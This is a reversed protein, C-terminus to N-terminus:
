KMSLSNRLQSFSDALASYEGAPAETLVGVATDNDTDIFSVDEKQLLVGSERVLFEWHLAPFGDFTEPSMDLQQYGPEKELVAIVPAAAKQPTSATTNPTLDIRLLTTTPSSPSVITTDTGYSVAQEADKIQWGAPYEISFARGNYTTTAPAPATSTAPATATTSEAEQEPVTTSEGCAVSPVTEPAQQWAQLLPQAIQTSVAFAIGNTQESGLDVLGVVDGSDVDILPGGSNGPNVAADTQVMDRRSVGDIPITRGVGSVTGQTSTLPLGLPFGLAVVPEGLVPPRTALSLVAGQVPMSTRVLAVDRAPDEGIVTGTGVVRGGQLLTISTAGAVVHEVTAVLRPGIIFGTGIDAGDCGSAQIRVIGSRTKAILTPLSENSSSATVTKTETVATHASGASSAQPAAGGCGALAVM